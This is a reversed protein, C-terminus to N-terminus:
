RIILEDRVPILCTKRVMRLIKSATEESSCTGNIVLQEGVTRIVVNSEPFSQKITRTLIEAKDGVSNGTAEVADQVHVDFHRVMSAGDNPSEAWVVLRTTGRGAGILKLENSGAAIAHCVNQDQINVRRLVGGLTLTRVQARSMYLPTAEGDTPPSHSLQTPHARNTKGEAREVGSLRPPAAPQIATTPDVATREFGLPPSQVAVPPRYRKSPQPAAAERPAAPTAVAAPAELQRAVSRPAPAMSETAQVSATQDGPLPLSSPEH